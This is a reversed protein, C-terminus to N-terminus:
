NKQGIKENEKLLGDVWMQRLAFKQIKGSGTLPFQEVPIWYKPTKQPSLQKRLYAFLQSSNCEAGQVPRIFAAVEEGYKESPLGVVAVEAIDPHAFLLEEIERPYINEGGRIILDKLRGEVKFYGRQDMSCLDGTHLWGEADITKATAEPMDFYGSMVHYGRTCFEGLMGVPLTEGSDPDVIKNQVGPMSTGLTAAKDDISDSPSTMCAVPSCETQGFVICFPANLARELRHVLEAPVTSGGSCIAKIAALDRRAFDPHELMAILMTPVGMLTNGRYTELLELVLAPDFIEVLVMTAQKSLSGLVSIGCGATHFLPMIGVAVGQFPLGIRESVHCANNFLGRHTLLAGKPFGTTGSTYQIMCPDSAIVSPLETSGNASDIFAQWDGLELVYRLDPCQDRVADLHQRLPNGRVNGALFLGAARSQTLIYQLEKPQFSPNVTVLVVGALACGYELMVWEPVNAAWVAVREGKDFRQALARAVTLAESYLEAYRWRRRRAPDPAGQVLALQDPNDRAAEALAAGITIDRIQPLEPGKAWALDEKM